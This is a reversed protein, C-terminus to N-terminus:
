TINTTIFKKFSTRRTRTRRRQRNSRNYHLTTHVRSNTCQRLVCLWDSPQRQNAASASEKNATKPFTYTPAPPKVELFIISCYNCNKSKAVTRAVIISYSPDSIADHCCNADKGFNLSTPTRNRLRRVSLRNM